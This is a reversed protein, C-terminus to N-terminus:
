LSIFFIRDVLICELLIHVAAATATEGEVCAGGGAMCVGAVCVGGGRVGGVGHMGGKSRFSQCVPTFVYGECVENAPLLLVRLVHM